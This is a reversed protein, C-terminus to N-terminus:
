KKKKFKKTDEYIGSSTPPEEKSLPNRLEEAKNLTMYAKPFWICRLSSSNNRVSSRRKSEEGLWVSTPGRQIEWACCCMCKEYFPLVHFATCHTHYHHCIKQQVCWAYKVAAATNEGSCRSQWHLGPPALCGFIPSFASIYSTIRLDKNINM